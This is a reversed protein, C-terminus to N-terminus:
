IVYIIQNGVYVVFVKIGKNKQICSTLFDLILHGIGVLKGLVVFQGGFDILNM